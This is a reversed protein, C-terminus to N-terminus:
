KQRKFIFSNSEVWIDDIQHSDNSSSTYQPVVNVLEWGDKGYGNLLQEIKGTASISADYKEVKYEWKVM